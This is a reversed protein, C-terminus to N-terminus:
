NKVKPQQKKLLKEEDIKFKLLQQNLQTDDGGGGVINTIPSVVKRIIKAPSGGM